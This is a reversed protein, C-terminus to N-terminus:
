LPTFKIFINRLRCLGIIYCIGSELDNGPLPGGAVKFAISRSSQLELRPVGM